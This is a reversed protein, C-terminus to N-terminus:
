PSWTTWDMPAVSAASGVRQGAPVSQPQGSRMHCADNRLWSMLESMGASGSMGCGRAGSLWTPAARSGAVVLEARSASSSGVATRTSLTASACLRARAKARAQAAGSQRGGSFRHLLLVLPPAIRAGGRHRRGPAPPLTRGGRDRRPGQLPGRRDRTRAVMEVRSVRHCERWPAM